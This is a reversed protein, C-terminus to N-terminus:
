VFDSVIPDYKKAILSGIIFIIIAEILPICLLALDPPKSELIANRYNTIIGVMPNLIYFSYIKKPVLSLPYFIPTAYFWMLLLVDVIYKIDRYRIYLYSTALSIGIVLIIQIILIIPLYLIYLSFKIDFIWIIALLLLICLIFNVLNYFIVSIPLVSRPFYVKQILRANDILSVTASSLSTTLFTWPFLGSLLFFPYNPMKVTLIKTFVFNLILMLIIPYAFAWFFGLRANKYRIKFEKITLTFILRHQTILVKIIQNM